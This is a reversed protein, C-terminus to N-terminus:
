HVIDWRDHRPQVRLHRESRQTHASEDFCGAIDRVNPLRSRSTDALPMIV